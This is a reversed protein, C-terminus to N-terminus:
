GAWSVFRFTVLVFNGVGIGYCLNQSWLGGVLPWMVRFLRLLDMVNLEFQIGLQIVNVEALPEYMKNRVAVNVM